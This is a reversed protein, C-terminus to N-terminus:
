RALNKRCFLVAYEEAQWDEKVSLKTEKLKVEGSSSFVKEKNKQSYMRFTFMLIDDVTQTIKFRYQHDATKLYFDCEGNLYGRAISIEELENMSVTKLSGEKSILAKLAQTRVVFYSIVPVDALVSNTLILTFVIVLSVFCRMNKSREIKKRDGM